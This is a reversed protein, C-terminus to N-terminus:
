KVNAVIFEVAKEVALDKMMRKKEKEDILEVLKEKEMQYAAVMEDVSKNFDDETAEINEAKVVAELVLRSQIRTLAQPRMEEKLKDVTAGTYKLYSNIDLGQAQLRRAFDDTMIRCQEDIMEEPIDMKSDAIIQEIAKDEIERKVAAKKREAIKEKLDKKYEELTDFESVDSAFEDDIEPLETAKIEKVKVKFLAPKGKLEEAHYDAPFTVNVDVDDGINKGILQDEFTDIFTHSGIKLSYDSGKGGEFPVGDISGEYDILVTDDQKVARDTVEIQRGNQQQIRELETNIDEETVEESAHEVKLGKYKGLTVDPKLAVEATYIFPKGKEIQVVEIKPQSVIEEDCNDLEKAYSTQILEDAADEYFISPGYTKEILQRPVKGKRFGPVSIRGKNKQFAKDLAADFEEASVEITLKAKKNELKEVTLSM